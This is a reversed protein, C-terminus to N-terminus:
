RGYEDNSMSDKSMGEPKPRELKTMGELKPRELKTM